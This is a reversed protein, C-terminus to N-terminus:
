LSSNLFFFFFFFFFFIPSHPLGRKQFENLSTMYSNHGMENWLIYFLWQLCNKFVRTVVVPADCAQQGSRLALKIEPWKPNCTIMILGKLDLGTWNKLEIKLYGPSSGTWKKESKTSVPVPSRDELPSCDQTKM